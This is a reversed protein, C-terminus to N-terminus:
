YAVYLKILYEIFCAKGIFTNYDSTATIASPISNRTGYACVIVTSHSESSYYVIIFLAIKM